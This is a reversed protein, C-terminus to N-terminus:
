PGPLVVAEETCLTFMQALGLFRFLESLEPSAECLALRGGLERVRRRLRVLRSLMTSGVLRVHAFNLVLQRHEEQEVLDFLYDAILDAMGEDCVETPLLTAITLGGVQEVTIWCDPPCVLDVPIPRRSVAGHLQSMVRRLVQLTGAM